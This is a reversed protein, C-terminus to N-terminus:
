YSFAFGRNTRVKPYGKSEITSSCDNNVAVEAECGLVVYEFCLAFITEGVVKIAVNFGDIVTKDLGGM